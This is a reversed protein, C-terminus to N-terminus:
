SKEPTAPSSHAQHDPSPSPTARLLGGHAHIMKSVKFGIIVSSLMKVDSLLADLDNQGVWFTDHREEGRVSRYNSVLYEGKENESLTWTGHIFHNRIQAVKKAGEVFADAYQQYAEITPYLARVSRRWLELKKSFSHPVVKALKRVIGWKRMDSIEDDLTSEIRSWHIIAEGLTTFMQPNMPLPDSTIQFMALGPIEPPEKM